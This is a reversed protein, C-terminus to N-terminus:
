KKNEAITLGFGGNFKFFALGDPAPRHKRKPKGRGHSWFNLKLVRKWEIGPLAEVSKLLELPVGEPTAPAVDENLEIQSFCWFWEAPFHFGMPPNKGVPHKFRPIVILVRGNSVATDWNYHEYAEEGMALKTRDADRQTGDGRYNWITLIGGLVEHGPKIFNIVTEYSLPSAIM